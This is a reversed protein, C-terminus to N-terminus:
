HLFESPFILSCQIEEKIGGLPFEIVAQFPGAQECCLLGTLQRHRLVNVRNHWRRIFILLLLRGRAGRKIAGLIMLFQGHKPANVIPSKGPAHELLVGFGCVRRSWHKTYYHEKQAPSKLRCSWVVPRARQYGTPRQKLHLKAM